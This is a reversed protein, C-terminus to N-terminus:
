ACGTADSFITPVQLHHLPVEGDAWMARNRVSNTGDVVPTSPRWLRAHVDRPRNQGVCGYECGFDGDFVLLVVSFCGKNPGEEQGERTM